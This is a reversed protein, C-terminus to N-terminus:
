KKFRNILYKIFNSKIYLNSYNNIIEKMFQLEKEKEELLLNKNNIEELTVAIITNQKAIEELQIANSNNLEKILYTKHDKIELM